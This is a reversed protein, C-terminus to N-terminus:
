GPPVWLRDLPLAFLRDEKRYGHPGLHLVVGAIFAAGVRDRLMRLGRFQSDTVTGGAKIEVGAIRGDATECVLDVEVADKTRFHSFTLPTETWGAQKLIENVAFTELVHGFETLAVPDRKLLRDENVGLLHAGLGSDVLHAKPSRNVRNSLTRGFADLRHILFVSELLQIFDGATSAQIGVDNAVDAANLLQGTQAAIRRLVLPLVARQRVRRIELVDREVIMKVVDRYWRARAAPSARAVALPFGGRMAAQEYDLRTTASPKQGLLSAPDTVLTQLFTEQHGLLEGQSLPWLTLIHARGTLSQSAAPLTAYSASGTLAYQGSRLDRNLEAKIVDLIAPVHQFEDIFVPQQTRAVVLAPDAAVAARTPLDDLDLVTAGAARACSRLLTSKGATRAGMLIVVPEERM